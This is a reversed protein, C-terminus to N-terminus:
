IDLLRLTIEVFRKRAREIRELVRKGSRWTGGEGLDYPLSDRKGTPLGRQGRTTDLSSRNERVDLAHAIKDVVVLREIAVCGKRRATVKATEDIHCVLAHSRAGFESCEHARTTIGNADHRNVAGLAQLKGNDGNRLELLARAIGAGLEDRKGLLALAVKREANRPRIGCRAVKGVLVLIGAGKGEGALDGLMPGMGMLELLQTIRLLLLAQEVNREGARAVLENEHRVISCERGLAIQGRPERATTQMRHEALIDGCPMRLDRCIGPREHLKDDGFNGMPCLVVLCVVFLTREDDRM